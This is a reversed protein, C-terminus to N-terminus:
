NIDSSLQDILTEVREAYPFARDDTQLLQLSTALKTLAEADRGLALYVEALHYQVLPDDSLSQAAPELYTLAEEHNGLRHAIWGYTDQFAPVRTGRLRRAISHARELAELDSRHTSMLSALNNAVVVSNSNRAYLDEYIAIAEDIDGTAEAETAAALKLTPSEPLAARAQRLVQAAAGAHGDDLHVQYLTTWVLESRPADAAIAELAAVAEERRGGQLLVGARLFRLAPDDPNEALLAEAYALAGEVDGQAQRLRILPPAVPLGSDVDALATLFAELEQLRNRAALQAANLDAALAEGDPVEPKRLTAIVHETRRWDEMRVYVSGLVALLQANDPHLRLAAVLVDEAPLLRGDEVLFQTYRLTEQPARGSAEVALALMEGLLERNGAREHAKAMLTLIEPDQPAEGQATRLQILADDPRDDEILWAAQLKLAQVQGPDRAVVGEVLARAEPIRDAAILMQALALKIRDTQASPEADDLLARLSAM